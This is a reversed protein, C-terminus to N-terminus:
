SVGQTTAVNRWGAPWHIDIDGHLGRDEFIGGIHRYFELLPPAPANLPDFWIVYDFSQFIFEAGVLQHNAGYLPSFGIQDAVWRIDGVRGTWTYLGCPFQLSAIGFAAKVLRETPERPSTGGCWLANRATTIFLNISTKIFWRELYPGEARVERHTQKGQVVRGALWDELRRIGKFLKIGAGDVPSLLSNHRECLINGTLSSLGISRPEGRSWPQGAVTVAPGDFLGASVLHERSIKGSCNGLSHGWCTRAM